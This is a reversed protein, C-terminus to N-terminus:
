SANQKRFQPSRLQCRRRFKEPMRDHDDFVLAVHTGAPAADADDDLSHLRLEFVRKPLDLLSEYCEGRIWNTLDAATTEDRSWIMIPAGGRIAATFADPALDDSAPLPRLMHVAAPPGDRLLASRLAQAAASDDHSDIERLAKVGATHSHEKLWAWNRAWGPHMDRDSLRDFSRLVLPYVTGIPSPFVPDVLWQDVSHTVLRRPLILELIREQATHEVVSALERMLRHITTIAEEWPVSRDSQYLMEEPEDEHQRWAALFYNDPAGSDPSVETVLFYRGKLVLRNETAQCVADVSSRDTHGLRHSVKDMWEHLNAKTSKHSRHAIYDIFDFLAPLRGAPAPFSEARAVIAAIDNPRFGTEDVTTRTSYHFAGALVSPDVGALHEIVEKRENTELLDEAEVSGIMRRISPMREDPGYLFTLTELLSRLAGPYDYAATIFELMDAQPTDQRVVSQLGSFDQSVQRIVLDRRAATHMEPLALMEECLRQRLRLPFPRDVSERSRTM